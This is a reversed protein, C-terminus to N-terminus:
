SASAEMTSGPRFNAPTSSALNSVVARLLHALLLLNGLLLLAQAATALLLWVKVHAAIAEFSVSAQNLDHGQIWGAIALSVVLGITGLLSTFYHARVLGSSPWAQGTLRPVMFYIAGFMIMSFAGTVALQHQAETFFTFQTVVAIGRFATIADLFGGLVYAVVGFGIFKLVVSGGGSFAGRLNLGVIMYHFLLLACSVGAVTVVWAPVPGGIFHRGGTWAGVFLLTWFGLSAFDYSAITRGGVKPVVYYAAALALPALWLTWAGQVYWGAIVAQLVGREPVFVLIVQAASFLWPFLFLAAVAYWQAAFTMEHRRGTWALVGAVGIAGYAVLMLPLVYRPLHLWGHALADGCAIGVVGGLLALNWFATGFLVWNLSRLSSGGLRALVWLAVALGANAAWGYIFASEQMAAVRGYTMVSCVAAFSPTHLQVLNVLALAGSLVLWVLASGVLLLLPFRASADIETVEATTAASPANIM